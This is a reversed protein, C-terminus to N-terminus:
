GNEKMKWVMMLENDKAVNATSLFRGCFRSWNAKVKVRVPTVNLNTVLWCSGFIDYKVLNTLVFIHLSAKRILFHYKNLLSLKLVSLNIHTLVSKTKPYTCGTNYPRWSGPWPKARWQSGSRQHHYGPPSHDRSRWQSQRKRRGTGCRRRRWKKSFRLNDMKIWSSEVHYMYKVSHLM